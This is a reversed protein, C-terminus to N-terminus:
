NYYGLVLRDYGNIQIYIKDDFCSLSIKNIVDTGIRHDKIQIRNMSHRRCKNNFLVGKYKNHSITAVVNRNTGKKKKHKSNDEVLFLYMKPNLRVFEKIAVGATEDKIKGLVLKNSNDYYKSKTLYNCFDFMEKDSSFYEFVDETKIENILYDTDTFLLRSNNGCKNKIYDNHFKYVLVKSLDLICM